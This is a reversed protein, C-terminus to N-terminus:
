LSCDNLLWALREKRVLFSFSAGLLAAPGCATKEAEIVTNGVQEGLPDARSKVRIFWAM